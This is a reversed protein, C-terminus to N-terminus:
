AYIIKEFFNKSIIKGLNGGIHLIHPMKKPQKKEEWFVQRQWNRHCPAGLHKNM